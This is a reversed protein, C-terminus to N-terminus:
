ILLVRVLGYCKIIGNAVHLSIVKKVNYGNIEEGALFVAVGCLRAAGWLCLVHLCDDVLCHGDDGGCQSLRQHDHQLHQHPRPLPHRAPGDPRPHGRAPHPLQVLVCRRVPRKTFLLHLPIQSLFLAEQFTGEIKAYQTSTKSM